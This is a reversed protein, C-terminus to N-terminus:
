NQKYKEKYFRQVKNQTKRQPINHAQLLELFIEIGRASNTVEYELEYDHNNLYYSYDLVLLGGKYEIEARETTLSGFYKLADVDVNLKILEAKIPGESILSSQILHKAVEKSIKENTELLGEIAPQKLTMEIDNEKERIRLACKKEKLDFTPTDFYHNVQKVFLTDELNFFSKLQLFEEKLLLNKFEIEIHQSM